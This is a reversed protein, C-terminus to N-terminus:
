PPRSQAAPGPPGGAGPDSRAGLVLGDHALHREQDGVGLRRRAQEPRQGVDRPGVGVDDGRDHAVAVRDPQQVGVVEAGAAPEVLEVALQQPREGGADAPRDSSM